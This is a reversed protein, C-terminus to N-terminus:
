AVPTGYRKILDEAAYNDIVDPHLTLAAHWFLRGNGDLQLKYCEVARRVLSFAASTTDKASAQHWAVVDAVTTGFQAPANLSKDWDPTPETTFDSSRVTVSQTVPASAGGENSTTLTVNYTGAGIYTHTPNQETSTTGDGFEWLYTLTGLGTSADTFAVALPATGATKDKTFDATPVPLPGYEGGDFYFNGDQSGVALTLDVQHVGAPIVVSTNQLASPATGAPITAVVVGDIKIDFAKSTVGPNSATLSRITLYGPGQIAMGGQFPWLTKFQWGSSTILRYASGGTAATIAYADYYNPTQWFADTEPYYTTVAPPEPVARISAATPQYKTAGSANVAASVNSMTTVPGNSDWLGMRGSGFDASRNAWGALVRDKTNTATEHLPLAVAWAGSPLGSRSGTYIAAGSTSTGGNLSNPNPDMAGRWVGVQVYHANTWTGVNGTAIDTAAIRRYALRYYTAGAGSTGANSWGQTPATPYTSSENIAMVIALDGPQCGAPLATTTGATSSGGVWSIAM